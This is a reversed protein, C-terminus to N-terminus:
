RKIGGRLLDPHLSCRNAVFWFDSTKQLAPLLEDLSSATAPMYALLEAQLIDEIAESGEVPDLQLLDNHYWEHLIFLVIPVILVLWGVAYGTVILVISLLLTLVGIIALVNRVTKRAFLKKYTAKVVRPHTSSVTINM